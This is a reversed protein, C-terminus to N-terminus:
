CSCQSAADVVLPAKCFSPDQHALTGLRLRWGKWKQRDVERLMWRGSERTSTHWPTAVAVNQELMTPRFCQWLQPLSAQPEYLHFCDPMAYLSGLRDMGAAALLVDADCTSARSYVMRKCVASSDIMSSAVSVKPPFQFGERQLTKYVEGIYNLEYRSETAAAWAQIYELIKSRVEHNVAAPGVAKLLSVLNDM